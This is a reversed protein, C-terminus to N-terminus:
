WATSAVLADARRLASASRARRARRLLRALRASWAGRFTLRHGGVDASSSLKGFAGVRAALMQLGHLLALSASAFCVERGSMSGDGCAYGDLVGAVFPLPAGVFEAPVRKDAAAAGFARQLVRALLVSHGVVTERGNAGSTTVAWKVGHADFWVGLARQADADNSAVRVQGTVGCASGEALYLGCFVGFERTLALQEPLDAVDAQAYSDVRLALLADGPPAPLSALVPVRSKGPVLRAPEVEHIAGSQEDYVLVSKSATVTVDRGGRTRVRYLVEGPDHRTLATVAGWTVAGAADVTPMFVDADGLKVLELNRQEAGHREIARGEVALEADIWDGIRVCRVADAGRKVYVLTDGTVSKVATDILGERGGMAHFFFEAAHPWVPLSNTVFGRSDPGYDDKYYHPLSRDRFGFAIRKGEVNQQGVCNHVVVGGAVFADGAPVTLDFVAIPKGNRPAARRAGRRAFIVDARQASAHAHRAARGCGRACWVRFSPALKSSSSAFQWARPPRLRAPARTTTPSRRRTSAGCQRRCVVSRSTRTQPGNTAVTPSVQGRHLLKSHDTCVYPAWPVQQLADRWSRPDARNTHALGCRWLNDAAANLVMVAAEAARQRLSWWSLWATWRRQKGTAYHVGVARAFRATDGLTRFKIGTRLTLQAAAAPTPATIASAQQRGALTLRFVADGTLASCCDRCFTQEDDWAIARAGLPEECRDCVDDDASEGVRGLLDDSPETPSHQSVRGAAVLSQLARWVVGLELTPL